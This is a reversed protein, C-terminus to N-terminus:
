SGMGVTLPCNFSMGIKGSKRSVRSQFVKSFWREREVCVADYRIDTMM